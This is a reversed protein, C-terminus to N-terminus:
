NPSSLGRDERACASCGQDNECIPARKTKPADHIWEPRVLAPETGLYYGWEEPFFRAICALEDGPKLRLLVGEGCALRNKEPMPELKLSELLESDVVAVFNRKGASQTRLETVVDGVTKWSRERLASEDGHAVAEATERIRPKRRVKKYYVAESRTFGHLWRNINSAHELGRKTLHGSRDKEDHRLLLVHPSTELNKLFADKEALDDRAFELFPCALSRYEARAPSGAIQSAALVAVCVSPVAQLLRSVLSRRWSQEPM